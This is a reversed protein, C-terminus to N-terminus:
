TTSELEPVVERSLLTALRAGERAVLGAAEEAWGAVQQGRGGAGVARDARAYLRHLDETHQSVAVRELEVHCEDAAHRLRELTRTKAAGGSSSM